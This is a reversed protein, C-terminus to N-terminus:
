EEFQAEVTRCAGGNYNYSDYFPCEGYLCEPYVETQNDLYYKGDSKRDWHNVHKIRFPCVM